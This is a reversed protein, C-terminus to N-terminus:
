KASRVFYIEFFLFLFSLILPGLIIGSIGFASIGGLIGVLSIVPHIKTRDSILKTKLVIDVLTSLLIFSYILLGLGNFLDGIYILYIALPVYIVAPGIMPLMGVILMLFAFFGPYPVGFILFGFYGLISLIIGITVMGYITGYLISKSREFLMETIHEDMPAHKKIKKALEGSERLIYYTVAMAILINLLKSPLSIIMGSALNVLVALVNEMINQLHPAISPILNYFVEGMKIFDLKSYLGIFGTVAKELFLIFPVVVVLVILTTTIASTIKLNNIKRDILKNLPMFAFGIIFGWVIGDLLPLSLFVSLGLLIAFVLLLLHRNFEGYEKM